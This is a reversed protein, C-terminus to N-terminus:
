PRRMGRHRAGSRAYSTPQPLTPTPRTLITEALRCFLVHRVLLQYLPDTLAEELAQNEDNAADFDHDSKGSDKMPYDNEDHAGM